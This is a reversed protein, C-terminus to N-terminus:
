DREQPTLFLADGYSFFRYSAAIAEQYISKIRDMGAFASVLMILTSKPLHFNTIMADIVNFQYGPTIFIDTEGEFPQLVGSRGATELSRVSTTGVAIVRGGQKKTKAILDCVEQSVSLWEKHMVHEHINDTRVPAFTGAGVHLTVEGTEIGKLRIASMLEQDFHLGATPAAVAGPSSAYVTQYREADFSQVDRGLYPPLPMEGLAEALSMWTGSALRMVFLDNSREEFYAVAGNAFVLAAGPKMTKSMRLYCLAHTPSMIREIMCEVAGGTPKRAHLRAPIVKTNNFILCDQPQLLNILDSFILHQNGTEMCALLRSHSRKEAPYRAILHDPLHYDFDSLLM